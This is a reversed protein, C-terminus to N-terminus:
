KDEGRQIIEEALDDYAMAGKSKKDYLNIPLGHSPAESLRVNRPIMTSYIVAKNKLHDKVEEV